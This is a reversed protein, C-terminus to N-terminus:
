LQGGLRKRLRNTLLNICLNILVISVVLVIGTAMAKNFARTDMALYYLHLAMTRGGSLLSTPLRYSGGLTVYFVATESVVRGVSLIVGTIVGPLATPLVVGWVTQWQTAGLALSAERYSKPVTLLAEETTRIIVPLILCAGALGASLLSFGFHLASVFLAYGFLGFIISPVGALTEVGFRAVAVLRPLLGRGGQMEGAYEVLYVAAFVGLPTAILITLIVLYLTTVITTSIGGEGSLGGRPQTTLFGPEIVEAFGGRFVYFIVVVLAAIAVAGALWLVGFAIRQIWHRRNINSRARSSIGSKAM